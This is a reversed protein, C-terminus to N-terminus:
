NLGSMKKYVDGRHGALLTEVVVFVGRIVTFVIRCDGIRMRYYQNGRMGKLRKLDIREPHEGRIFELLNEEYRTRVDEHTKLFKDAAKTYRIEVDRRATDPM